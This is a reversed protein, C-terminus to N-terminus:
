DISSFITRQIMRWKRVPEKDRKELVDVVLPAIHPLQHGLAVAEERLLHDSLLVVLAQTALEGLLGVHDALPYLAVQIGDRGDAHLLARQLILQPLELSVFLFDDVVFGVDVLELPIVLYAIM